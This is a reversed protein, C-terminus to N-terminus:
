AVDLSLVVAVEVPVLREVVLVVTPEAVEQGVDKSRGVPNDVVLNCFVDILCGGKRGEGDRGALTGSCAIVVTTIAATALGVALWESEAEEELVVVGIGAVVVKVVDHQLDGGLLIGVVGLLDLHCHVKLGGTSRLVVGTGACRRHM